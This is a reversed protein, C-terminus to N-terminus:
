TTKGSSTRGLLVNMTGKKLTLNTDYIHTRGDVMMTVNKLELSM